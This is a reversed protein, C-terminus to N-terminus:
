LPDACNKFAVKPGSLDMRWFLKPPPPQPNDYINQLM